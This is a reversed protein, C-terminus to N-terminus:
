SFALFYCYCLFLQFFMLFIMHMLLVPIVFLLSLCCIFYLSKLIHTRLFSAFIFSHHATLSSPLSFSIFFTILFLCESLSLFSFYYILEKSHMFSVSLVFSHSSYLPIIIFDLLYSSCHHVPYSLRYLWQNSAPHDAISVRHPRIKGGTWVPGPAWGAEQVIPVPDKGVTFHPRTTSSVM